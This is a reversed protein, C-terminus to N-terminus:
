AIVGNIVAMYGDEITPQVAIANQPPEEAIVRFIANDTERRSSIILHEKEIIDYDSYPCRFSGCM